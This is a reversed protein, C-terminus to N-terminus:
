TFKQAFFFEVLFLFFFIMGLLIPDKFVLDKSYYIVDTLYYIFLLDFQLGSGFPSLNKQQKKKRDRSGM